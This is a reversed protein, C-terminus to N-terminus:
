GHHCDTCQSLLLEVCLNVRISFCAPNQSVSASNSDRNRGTWGIFLFIAQKAVRPAAVVVIPDAWDAPLVTRILETVIPSEAVLRVAVATSSAGNVFTVIALLPASKPVRNATLIKMIDATAHTRRVTGAAHCVNADRTCFVRVAARSASWQCASGLLNVVSSQTVWRALMVRRALTRDAPAM